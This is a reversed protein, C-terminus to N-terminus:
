QSTPLLTFQLLNDSRLHRAALANLDATTTQEIWRDTNRIVELSDPQSQIDDLSRAWWSNIRRSQASSKLFQARARTLEDETIGKAVLKEVVAKMHFVVEDTKDRKVDLSCQLSSLAPFTRSWQVGANVGYTEGLEERIKEKTREEIIDMLLSLRTHEQGSDLSRVPWHLELTAPRTASVFTYTRTAPAAPPTLKGAETMAKSTARRPTAGLTQAVDAITSDIDIDGVITCELYGRDFQPKLWARLEKFSYSSVQRRPPLIFRSDNGALFPLMLETRPKAASEHLPDYVDSMYSQMRPQADKRFGPDIIDATLLRLAFPLDKSIASGSFVFANDGTRLNVRVLRGNIARRVEDATHKGLGGVFVGTVWHRLGPHKRPEELLGTGVRISFDVDENEFDTKKLNLRVGNAFEVIWVDIDALHEKRVIKGPTGFNKYAFDVAKLAQAKKAGQLTSKNYAALITAPPVRFDSNASAYIWKPPETGWADRLAQQCRAPTLADLVKLRREIREDPFMFVTGTASDNVIQDALFSSHITGVAGASHRLSARESTKIENLETEHFGHDIARRLEQEATAVATEWNQFNSGVTISIRRIRQFFWDDHVSVSSIKAKSQERIRTLRRELMAHALRFAGQDERRELSDVPRQEQILHSLSFGFGSHVDEYFKVVPTEPIAIQGFDPEERLPARSVVSSFLDRILQGTRATDIAGVVVVLMREPRYWADYFARLGDADATAISEPTGIAMRDGRTGDFYFDLWAETARRRPGSRALDESAIVRRERDVEGSDFLMGDAFDRFIRLGTTLAAENGPLDFKYITREQNTFANIHAGMRAGQHQLLKVFEGPAFNKTGNFAMHEVFHAYGSEDDREHLSGVDVFLRISIHDAPTKNPLLAYRLGNDLRGWTVRPSPILGEARAPWETLTPASAPPITEPTQARAFVLTVFLLALLPLGRTLKV